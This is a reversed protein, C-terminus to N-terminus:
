IVMLRTGCVDKTARNTGCDHTQPYIQRIFAGGTVQPWIDIDISDNALFNGYRKTLGITQLLPTQGPRQNTPTPDLMRQCAYSSRTGGIMSRTQAIVSAMSVGGVLFM